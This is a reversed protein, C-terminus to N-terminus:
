VDDCANGLKFGKYPTSFVSLFWFKTVVIGRCKYLTYEIEFSSPAAAM